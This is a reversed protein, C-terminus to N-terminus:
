AVCDLRPEWLGGPPRSSAALLNFRDITHETEVGFKFGTAFGLSTGNSSSRARYTRVDLQARERLALGLRRIAALSTPSSRFHKWAEAVEPDRLDGRAGLEWRRGAINAPIDDSGSLALPTALLPSLKAGGAVTGTGLLSLEVPHRHRDLKVALVVNTDLSGTPGVVSEALASGGEGVSLTITTAGTQHNRRLALVHMSKAALSVRVKLSAAAKAGLEYIDERASVPTREGREIARLIRDAERANRAYYVKGTGLIGNGGLKVERGVGGSSLDQNVQAHAGIGIEVGAGYRKVVTLRVTGDSLQERVVFSDKDVRVVALNLGYRRSDRRMAFTCPRPRDVACAQGTVVCLARAMQARVANVVGPAGVATLTAAIAVLVAVVALLAVYDTTAQGREGRQSAM